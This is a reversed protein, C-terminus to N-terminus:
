TATYSGHGTPKRSVHVTAWLPLEKCPQLVLESEIVPGWM